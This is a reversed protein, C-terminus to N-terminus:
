RLLGAWAATLVAAGATFWVAYDGV